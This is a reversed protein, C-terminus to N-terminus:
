NRLYKRHDEKGWGGSYIIHVEGDIIKAIVQFGIFLIKLTEKEKFLM